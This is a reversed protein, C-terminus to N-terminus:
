DIAPPASRLQFAVAEDPVAEFLAVFPLERGAGIRTAVFDRVARPRANRMADLSRERLEAEARMWVAHATPHELPQGASDLLVVELGGQPTVTRAGPNVLKGRVAYVTEGGSTEIWSGAIDDATLSGRVGDATLSGVRLHTPAPEPSPMALSLGQIAGVALLGATVVWGISRGVLRGRRDQAAAFEAASAEAALSEERRRDEAELEGRTVLDTRAVPVPKAGQSDDSLLDWDEPDDDSETDSMLDDFNSRDDDASAAVPEPEALSTFDGPSGFVDGDDSPAPAAPEVAPSLEDSQQSLSAVDPELAPGSFSEPDPQENGGLGPIADMEDDALAVSDYDAPDDALAVSDYDASEDIEEDGDPGETDDSDPLDENFEWDEEDLEGASNELEAHDSEALSAGEPSDSEEPRPKLDNTSWPEEVSDSVAQEVVDEIAEASGAAETSDTAEAADTAEASPGRLFFAEKCRSCRVRIGSEPVREDDLKFRTGCKGCEVIL